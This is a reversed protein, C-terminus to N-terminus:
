SFDDRSLPKNIIVGEGGLYTKLKGDILFQVKKISNFETATFVIQKLQNLTSERGYQNFEFEKSLNIYATNNKVVISIIKTDDPINTIINSKKEKDIPGALLTKLTETLPSDTYKVSRSVSQLILNDNEDIKTFYIRTTKLNINKEKQINDKQEKKDEREYSLKTRETSKVYTQKTKNTTKEQKKSDNKSYNTKKNNYKDKIKEKQYNEQKIDEKVVKEEKQKEIVKNEEKINEKQPQIEEKTKDEEIIKDDKKTEVKNNYKNKEEIFNIKDFINGNEKNIKQSVFEKGSNYFTNFFVIFKEKYAYCIIGLLVLIILIFVVGSRNKNKRAAM